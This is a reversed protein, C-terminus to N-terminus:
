EAHFKQHAMATEAKEFEYHEVHEGEKVLKVGELIIQDKPDLGASVVFKDELEHAITIARQRVVKDEGIVRVYMKDLIEFTARQPIVIAQRIERHVHLTGTQGNRLMRDPNPFDARLKFNGTEFNVDGEVTLSNKGPQLFKRGDALNLEIKSDALTLKSVDHTKEHDRYELYRVEPVNFYVWMVENDSLTTLVDKKDVFSGEQMFLRDVIGDFKARIVTFDVEAEAQLARAKAENYEAEALQPDVPSVVNKRALQKAQEFKIQAVEAKAQEAEMRKKYLTPLIRFLVDGEKVAQGEKLEIKELYGEQLPRVEIHRRSRIQCVYPQTIVVDRVLPNTVVITHHEHHENSERRNQCAPLVLCFIAGFAITPISSYHMATEPQFKSRQGVVYRSWSRPRRPYRIAQRRVNAVKSAM